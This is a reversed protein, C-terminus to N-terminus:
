HHTSMLKRWRKQHKRGELLAELPMRAKGNENHFLAGELFPRLDALEKTLLEMAMQPNANQPLADVMKDLASITQKAARKIASDMKHEDRRSLM